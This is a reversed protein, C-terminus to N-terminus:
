ELGSDLLVDAPVVAPSSSAQYMELASRVQMLCYQWTWSMFHTQERREDPDIWDVLACGPKGDRPCLIDAGLPDASEWFVTKMEMFTPDGSCWLSNRKVPVRSLIGFSDLFEFCKRKFTTCEGIEFSGCSQKTYEGFMFLRCPWIFVEHQICVFLAGHINFAFLFVTSKHLDGKGTRQTALQLFGDSLLYRMGPSWSIVPWRFEFHGLNGSINPFFM